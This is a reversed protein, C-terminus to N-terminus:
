SFGNTERVLATYLVRYKRFWPPGKGNTAQGSTLEAEVRAAALEYVHHYIAADVRLGTVGIHFLEQSQQSKKPLFVGMASRFIAYKGVCM